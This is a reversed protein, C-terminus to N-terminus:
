ESGGPAGDTDADCACGGREVLSTPRYSNGCATCTVQITVSVDRSETTVLGADDLREFTRAVVRACRARAWETTDVADDLTITGDRATDVELCERLHHRVTPHTVWDDTVADVDVGAQELRTRVRATREPEADDGALARYVASVAEEDTVAGYVGATGDLDTDDLAAALIRRNVHDALARLSEDGERRRQLLDDDLRDLGYRGAARGVKCSCRDANDESM